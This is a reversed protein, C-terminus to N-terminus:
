QLRNKIEASYSGDENLTVTLPRWEEGDCFLLLCGEVKLNGNNLLKLKSKYFRGDRPNYIKGGRLSNDSDIKTNFGELLNIGVLLRSRLAVNVNNEDLVSKPDIGEEVLLHIIEACIQDGCSKVEVVSESTLWYGIITKELGELLQINLLIIFLFLRTKRM